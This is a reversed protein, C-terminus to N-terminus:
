FPLIEWLFVTCTSYTQMEPGKVFSNYYLSCLQQDYTLYPFLAVYLKLECVLKRHSNWTEPMMSIIELLTPVAYHEQESLTKNEHTHTQPKNKNHSLSKTNTCSVFNTTFFFTLFIGAKRFVTVTQSGYFPSSSYCGFLSM